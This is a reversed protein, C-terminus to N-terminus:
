SQKKEQRRWCTQMMACRRHCTLVHLAFAADCCVVGVAYPGASLLAHGLQCCCGTFCLVCCAAGASIARLTRLYRSRVCGFAFTVARVYTAAGFFIALGGYIGLYFADSRVGFNREAWWGAWLNILNSAGFECLFLVFLRSMWLIGGGSVIYALVVKISVAGSAREENGARVDRLRKVLRHGRNRLKGGHTASKACASAFHLESSRLQTFTCDL